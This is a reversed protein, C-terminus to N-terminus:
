VLRFSLLTGIPQLSTVTGIWGLIQTIIINVTYGGPLLASKFFCKRIETFMQFKAALSILGM